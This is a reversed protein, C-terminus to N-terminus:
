SDSSHIPLPPGHRFRTAGDSGCSVDVAECRPHLGLLILTPLCGADLSLGGAEELAIEFGEM